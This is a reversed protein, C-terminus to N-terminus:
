TELKSVRNNASRDKFYETYLKVVLATICVNVLCTLVNAILITKKM